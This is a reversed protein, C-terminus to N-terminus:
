STKLFTFQISKSKGATYARYKFTGSTGPSLMGFYSFNDYTYDVYSDYTTFCIAGILIGTSFGTPLNYTHQTADNEITYNVTAIIPTESKWAFDEWSTWSGNTYIRAYIHSPIAYTICVQQFASSGVRNVVLICASNAPRHYMSYGNADWAFTYIGPETINNFDSSSSLQNFFKSNEAM